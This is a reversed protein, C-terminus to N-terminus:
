LYLGQTMLVNILKLIVRVARKRFEKYKKWLNTNYAVKTEPNIERKINKTRKSLIPFSM